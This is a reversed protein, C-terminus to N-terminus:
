RQKVGVDHRVRVINNEVDGNIKRSGLISNSIVIGIASEFAEAAQEPTGVSILRVQYPGKRKQSM